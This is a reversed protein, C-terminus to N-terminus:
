YVELEESDSNLIFKTNIYIKKGLQAKKDYYLKILDGKELYDIGVKDNENTYIKIDVTGDIIKFKYDRKNSILYFYSKDWKIEDIKLKLIEM